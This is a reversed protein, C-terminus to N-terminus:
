HATLTQELNTCVVCNKKKGKEKEYNRLSEDISTNHKPVHHRCQGSFHQVLELAKKLKRSDGKNEPFNLMFQLMM